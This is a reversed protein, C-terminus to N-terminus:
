SPLGGNELAEPWIVRPEAAHIQARRELGTQLPTRNTRKLFYLADDIGIAVSAIGFGPDVL